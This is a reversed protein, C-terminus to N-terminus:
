QRLRDLAADADPASGAEVLLLNGRRQVSGHVHNGARLLQTGFWQEAVEADAPTGYRLLEFPETGRFVALPSVQGEDFRLETVAALTAFEPLFQRPSGSYDTASRVVGNFAQQVDSNSYTAGSGGCGAALVALAVLSLARRM